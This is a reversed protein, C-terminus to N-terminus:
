FIGQGDGHPGADGDDGGKLHERKKWQEWRDRMVEADLDEMGSEALALRTEDDAKARDPRQVRDSFAVDGLTFEVYVLVTSSEEDERTMYTNRLYLGIPQTAKELTDNLVAARSEFDDEPNEMSAVTGKKKNGMIAAAEGPGPIVWRNTRSQEPEVGESPRNSV